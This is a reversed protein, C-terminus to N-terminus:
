FWFQHQLYSESFVESPRSKLTRFEFHALLPHSFYSCTGFHALKETEPIIFWKGWISRSHSVTSGFMKLLHNPRTVNTPLKMKQRQRQRVFQIIIRLSQCKEPCISVVLSSVKGVFM